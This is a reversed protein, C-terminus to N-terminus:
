RRRGKIQVTFVRLWEGAQFFYTSFSIGVKDGQSFNETGLSIAQRTLAAAGYDTSSTWYASDACNTGSSFDPGSISIDTIESMNEVVSSTQYTVFLTEATFDWPFCGTVGFNDTETAGYCSDTLLCYKSSVTQELTLIVSDGTADRGYVNEFNVVEWQGSDVRIPIYAETYGVGCSDAATGTYFIGLNWRDGKDVWIGTARYIQKDWDASNETGTLVPDSAQEWTLGDGSTALYLRYPYTKELIISVYQDPGYAVVDMHWMDNGAYQGELDTTDVTTWPGEPDTATLMVVANDPDAAGNMEDVVWMKYTGGTDAVVAPSLRSPWNTVSDTVTVIARAPTSWDLGNSSYSAWIVSTDISPYGTNHTWTAKWMMWMKDDYGYFFECDCLFDVTDNYADTHSAVVLDSREWVPNHLTSDYIGADFEGSGSDDGRYFEHWRVMDNSVHICPNEDGAGGPYPTEVLWYKFRTKNDRPWGGPVYVVSPHLAAFSDAHTTDVGNIFYEDPILLRLYDPNNQAVYKDIDLDAKYMWPRFRGTIECDGVAFFDKLINATDAYYASDTKLAGNDWAAITDAAKNWSTTDDTVKGFDAVTPYLGSHDGWGYATQYNTTDDGIKGVNAITEYAAAAESRVVDATDHVTTDAYNEAHGVTAMFSTDVQITDNDYELTLSDIQVMLTSDAARWTLGDGDTFSMFTQDDFQLYSMSALALMSSAGIALVAGNNFIMQGSGAWPKIRIDKNGFITTDNFFMWGCTDDANKLYTTTIVNGSADQLAKGSSDAAEAFIVILSDTAFATTTDFYTRDCLAFLNALTLGTVQNSATWASGSWTMVQDTTASNQGIDEFLISANDIEATGVVGSAIDLAVSGTVDGTHTQNYLNSSGQALDDTDFKGIDMSDAFICIISDGSADILTDFYTRDFYKYFSLLNDALYGAASHDGWGHATQYNTTDDTVKDIITKHNALSDDRIGVAAAIKTGTTDVDDALSATAIKWTSNLGSTDVKVSITDVVTGSDAAVSLLGYRFYLRLANSLISYDTSSARIVLSDESGSGGATGAIALSSDGSQTITINSGEILGKVKLSVGTKGGALGFGSTNNYTGTDSLTNDEGPAYVGKQNIISDLLTYDLELSDIGSVFHLYDLIAASDIVTLGDRGVQWLGDGLSIFILTDYGDDSLHCITDLDGKVFWYAPVPASGICILAVIVLVICILIM